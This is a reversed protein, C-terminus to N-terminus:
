KNLSPNPQPTPSPSPSGSPTAGTGGGARPAAVVIGATASGVMGAAATAQELKPDYVFLWDAYDSKGNFEKIGTGKSVSAVGIIAGGGFQQPGTGPPPNTNLTGTGGGNQNKQQTGGAGGSDTGGKLGPNNTGSLGPNQNQPM